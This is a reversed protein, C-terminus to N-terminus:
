PKTEPGAPKPPVPSKAALHEEARQRHAETAGAHDKIKQWFKRAEEPQGAKELYLALNNVASIDDPAAELYERTDDIAKAYDGLAAQCFGRGFRAPALKPELDLAKTYVEIAEGHQANLRLSDALALAVDARKPNSRFARRHCDLAAQNQGASRFVDGYLKLAAAPDKVRAVSDAAFDAANDKEGADLLKQLYAVSFKTDAPDALVAKRLDAMGDRTEGLDFRATARSFYARANGPRLALARELHEVATKLLAKNDPSKLEFKLILADALGQRIDARDPDAAAAKQFLEIAPDLAAAGKEQLLRLADNYLKTGGEAAYLSVTAAAVLAAMSGFAITTRHTM